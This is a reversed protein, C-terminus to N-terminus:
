IVGCNDLNLNNCIMFSFEYENYCYVGLFEFYGMYKYIDFNDDGCVELEDDKKDEM